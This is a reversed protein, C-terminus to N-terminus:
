VTENKKGKEEAKKYFQTILAMDVKKKGSRNRNLEEELRIMINEKNSIIDNMAKKSFIYGSPCNFYEGLLERFIWITKGLEKKENSLRKFGPFKDKYQHYQDVIFNKESVKASADLYNNYLNKEKLEKEFKENIELLFLVDNVAYELLDDRIPRRLWNARQYSDKVTKEIGIYDAINIRLGLLKQAIAIDRIPKISYGLVNQTMFLDNESSFMVKVIDPSTLFDKLAQSKHIKLVDIIVPTIGDFCQFISISYKYKISGQDGELDLAIKDIKKSRLNELYSTIGNESSIIKIDSM